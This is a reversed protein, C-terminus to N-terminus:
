PQGLRDETVGGHLLIISTKGLLTQVYESKDNVDFLHGAGLAYTLAIDLEGLYFFM